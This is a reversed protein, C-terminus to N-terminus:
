KIFTKSLVAKMASRYKSTMYFLLAFWLLCLTIYVVHGIVTYRIVQENQMMYSQTFFPQLVLFVNWCVVAFGTFALVVGSRYVVSSMLRAPGQYKDSYSLGRLTIGLFLLIALVTTWLHWVNM